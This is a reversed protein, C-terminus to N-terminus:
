TCPAMGIDIQTATKINLLESICERPIAGLYEQLYFLYYPDDYRLRSINFVVHSIENGIDKDLNKLKCGM